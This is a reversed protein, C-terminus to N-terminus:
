HVTKFGYLESLTVSEFGTQLLLTLTTELTKLYLSCDAETLNYPSLGPMVEVNHFMMNLVTDQGYKKVFDDALRGMQGATSYGPRLWVAQKKFFRRETGISLPVEL